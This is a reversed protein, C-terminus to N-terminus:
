KGKFAFFLGTSAFSRVAPGGYGVRLLGDSTALWLPAPRFFGGM